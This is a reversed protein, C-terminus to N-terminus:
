SSLGEDVVPYKRANIEIKRDVAANLDVGLKDAIRLLYILIDAVEEEVHER